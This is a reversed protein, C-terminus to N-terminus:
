RIIETKSLRTSLIDIIARQLPLHTCIEFYWEVEITAFSNAKGSIQMVRQQRVQVNDGIILESTNGSTLTSLVEGTMLGDRTKTIIRM